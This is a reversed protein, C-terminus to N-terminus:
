PPNKRNGRPRLNNQMKLLDKAFRLLAQQAEPVLDKYIGFFEKEYPSAGFMEGKGTRLWTEDVNFTLCILKINKETIANKGSEIMSLATRKLGLREAFAGQNLKLYKRIETIRNNM